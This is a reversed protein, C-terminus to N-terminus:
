SVNGCVALHLVVHIRAFVSMASSYGTEESVPM